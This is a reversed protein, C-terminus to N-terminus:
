RTAARRVANAQELEANAARAAERDAQADLVADLDDAFVYGWAQQEGSDNADTGRVWFRSFDSSGAVSAINVLIWEPSNPFTMAAGSPHRVVEASAEDTTERITRLLEAVYRSAQYKQLSSEAAKRQNYNTM